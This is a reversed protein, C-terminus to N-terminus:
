CRGSMAFGNKLQAILQAAQATVHKQPFSHATMQPQLQQQMRPALMPDIGDPGPPQLHQGVPQQQQTQPRNNMSLPINQQQQSTSPGAGFPSVSMNPPRPGMAGNQDAGPGMNQSINSNRVGLAFSRQDQFLRQLATRNNEVVQITKEDIGQAHLEAASFNSLPLLQQWGRNNFSLSKQQKNRSEQMYWVEFPVIFEKYLHQLSQAIAPGCKAPETSTGPFQVFGLRGGIICWLNDNGEIKDIL